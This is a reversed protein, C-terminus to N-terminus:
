NGVSYRLVEVAGSTPATPAVRPVLELGEIDLIGPLLRLEVTRGSRMVDGPVVTLARLGGDYSVSMGDFARDGPQLPAYTLQVRGRFSDVDMDKSFQVVFHGTPPVTTDGDLPLAFVVVPPVPPRPPPPPAPAVEPADSPPTALRVRGARIYTIGNRSVVQGIVELWRDTDKKMDPDLEFGDGKPKADTVWAAYEEHKIVWDGSREHSKAPLDGFLNKGRFRGVVRVIQGDRDGPRTVLSELTAPRARDAIDKTIVERPGVFSWFRIAISADQGMQSRNMSQALVVGTINLTQGLWRRAVQEFSGASEVMPLILVPEGMTSRLYYGEGLRTNPLELRGSTRVARNEYQDPNLVIDTLSVDIPQGYRDAYRNNDQATLQASAPEAALVLSLAALAVRAALAM